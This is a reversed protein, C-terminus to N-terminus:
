LDGKGLAREEDVMGTGGGSPGDDGGVLEDVFARPEDNCGGLTTCLGDGQLFTSQLDEDGSSRRIDWESLDVSM